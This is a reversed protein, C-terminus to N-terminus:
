AIKNCTLRSLDVPLLVFGAEHRIGYSWRDNFDPQSDTAM